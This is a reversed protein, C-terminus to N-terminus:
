IKERIKKMMEGFKRGHELVQEPSPRGESAKGFVPHACEFLEEVRLRTEHTCYAAYYAINDREIEEAKERSRGPNCELNHQICEELYKDAEAKTAIKMAPDYKEGGTINKKM